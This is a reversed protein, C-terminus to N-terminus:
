HRSALERKKQVVFLIAMLLASIVMMSGYLAINNSDRTNPPTPYDKDQQPVYTNVFAMRGGDTVEYSTFLGLLGTSKVKATKVTTTINLSGRMDDEVTVTLWYETTDYQVGSVSGAAEKIIFYYTDTASDSSFMQKHDFAFLAKGSIVDSSKVSVTDILTGKNLKLDSATGTNTAEYLEFTFVDDTKWERGNLTKTGPFYSFDVEGTAVYKNNFVIESVSNVTQNAQEDFKVESIMIASAVLNNEVEDADEDDGPGVVVTVRYVTNDYTVGSVTTGGNTEKVLYHYTGVKDIENTMLKFDDYEGDSDLDDNSVSNGIQSGETWVEENTVPDVVVEAEYLEFGFEDKELVRGTLVKTGQLEVKTSDLEYTNTFVLALSESGEAASSVKNGNDDQIQKVTLTDILEGQADYSLVVKVQYIAKSYVIAYDSNNPELEKVYFVKELSSSNEMDENTFELSVFANGHSDTTSTVHTTGQKYPITCAGDEFLGFQFRNEMSVEVGTENKLIKRIDFSVDAYQKIHVNTFNIKDKDIAMNNSTVTYTPILKGNGYDTVIVTIRYERSDNKISPYTHEKEHLVYHYTGTNAFSLEMKFEAKDSGAAGTVNKSILPTTNTINFNRDAEYLEFDFGASPWDDGLIATNSEDVYKKNGTLTLPVPDPIYTNEFVISNLSTIERTKDGNYLKATLTGRGDDSVQVVVKEIDTDYEMKGVRIPTGNDDNVYIVQEGSSPAVEKIYYVYDGPVTYEIEDFTFTGSVASAHVTQIANTGAIADSENSYLAFSFEEANIVKGNLKKLGGLTMSAKNLVTYSNNFVVPVSEGTAGGVKNILVNEVILARRDIPEVGVVVTVHYVSEDYTIAPNSGINEKIVFYYHGAKKFGENGTSQGLSKPLNFNFTGTTPNLSDLTVNKTGIAPETVVFDYGTEYISFSIEQEKGEMSINMSKTGTITTAVPVPELSYTNVFQASGNVPSSAIDNGNDDKTKSIVYDANFVGTAVELSLTVKVEYEAKSYNMGPRSGAIEKLLYTIEKTKVGNVEGQSDLMSKTFTKQLSAKGDIGPSIQAVLTLPDTKEYLGFVFESMPVTVGTENNLTKDISISIAESGFVNTFSAKVLYLNPNTDDVVVNSYGNVSNIELLGNMDNDTVVVDFYCEKLDYTVDSIPSSKDETIRFLYTGVKDFKVGSLDPSVTQASQVATIDTVHKWTTGELMEVNFKFQETGWGGTKEFVKTIDIKVGSSLSLPTPTYKNVFNAHALEDSVIVKNVFEDPRNVLTFSTPIAEETVSYVTNEPINKIIVSDDHGMLLEIKGNGDVTLPNSVPTGNNVTGIAEFTRTAFSVGFDVVVKFQLTNPISYEDGYDHTVIKSIELDGAHRSATNTFVVDDFTYTDVSDSAVTGTELTGDVTVSSVRYNVHYAESITYATGSPIGVLYVTQDNQISLSVKLNGSDSVSNYAIPNGDIDIVKFDGPVTTLGNLLIEFGFTDSAAADAIKKTLKIGQGSYKVLRGNNGHFYYVHYDDADNEPHDIVPYDVYKLTGTTNEEKLVSHRAVQQYIEGAPIYWTGDDNKKSNSLVSKAIPIYKYIIEAKDGDTTESTHQFMRYVHYYGDGSPQTDSNYETGNQDSYVISDEVYYYRENSYSPHFHAVTALHKNPDLVTTPDSGELTHGEGWRNSYFAYGITKGSENVVPHNHHAASVIQNMNVPNIAPDLEVEYLLRIPTSSDDLSLEINNATELSNTDISINYTVLPILAAPIKWIVSQHGTEIEEHVQVVIHMMDAGPIDNYTNNLSGQFIYSKNLYKAGVPYNAETHTADNWYGLYKGDQDAYWGLYNETHLQGSHSSQGENWATSLLSRVVNQEVGLREGISTQLEEGYPTWNAANGFAGSHLADLFAEGTFITDGIVLGELEKVRMFEGLEDEMTVYGDLDVLGEEVLTPYYKSQIIITEVIDDFADILDNADDASFYQDTYYRYTDSMKQGNDYDEVRRISNYNSLTGNQSASSYADWYANITSNTNYYPNLLRLAEGSNDVGLGLTYFLSERGYENEIKMKMSAATLQTPFVQRDTVSSSTGDGLNRNNNTPTTYDTSAYTPAGDTMLVVIPIRKTGAQVLGTEIVKNETAHFMDEATQIGGAIYTAGGVNVSESVENGESDLVASSTVSINKFANSNTVYSEWTQNNRKDDAVEEWDIGSEPLVVGAAILNDRLAGGLRQNYSYQPRSSVSNLSNTITTWESDSVVSFDVSITQSMRATRIQGTNERSGATFNYLELYIPYDNNDSDKGTKSTTYRDIAILEYANTGYVAVGVRNHNNLDYLKKIAKNTAEVMNHMDQSGMSNSLDLIIVTDSPLASYGTIQKTSAIASMAVLFNEDDVSVTYGDQETEMVIDENEFVVNGNNKKIVEKDMTLFASNNKTFVSKDTWVMGAYETTGEKFFDTWDNMTNSDSVYEKGNVETQSITMSDAEVSTVPMVTFSTFLLVMTLLASVLKRMYIDGKEVFNSCTRLVKDSLFSM